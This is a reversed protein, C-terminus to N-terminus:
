QLDASGLNREGRWTQGIFGARPKRYELESDYRNRSGAINSCAYGNQMVEKNQNM